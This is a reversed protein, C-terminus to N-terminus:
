PLVARTLSSHLAELGADVGRFGGIGAAQLKQCSLRVRLPRRAAQELRHTPTPVILQADLDFSTCIRHAFAVRSLFEPGTAHFTGCCGREMLVKTAAALDETYTPSGWQDEPVFVRQGAKLQEVLRLVFNRRAEDPGYLWATRLVLHRAPLETCIAMEGAAKSRSYANLPAVPDEEAYTAKLGDFVTDTSYYVVTCEHAQAYAAIARPGEANVAVCQADETEARDVNCFAGAILIWAPRLGRITAVAEVPQGLDIRVQDPRPVRHVGEIVESTERFVACLARGLQGSAGIILCRPGMGAM